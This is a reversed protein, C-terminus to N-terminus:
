LVDAPDMNHRAKPLPLRSVIIMEGLIAAAAILFGPYFSGTMDILFGGIAPGAMQGVGHGTTVLGMAAAAMTPGVLDGAAVTIITMPGIYAAGFLFASVYLSPVDQRFVPILIGVTMMLACTVIAEKRGWIDSLHGWPILTAVAMISVLSWLTGAFQTTYGLGRTLFTVLFVAYISFFGHCLYAAALGLLARNQFVAGWNRSAREVRSAPEQQRPGVDAPSDRITIYGIVGSALAALGFYTWAPRWGSGGHALLILPGFVATALIGVNAGITTISMFIGRRRPPFWTTVLGAIPIYTGGSGMGIVLMLFFAVPYWSNLAQGVMALGVAVASLSIIARSGFRVAVMGSILCSVTYGVMIASALAGAPGYSLNLSDKMAPLVVPYLYRGAGLTTLTTVFGAVVILWSYPHIVENVASASDELAHDSPTTLEEGRAGGIYHRRDLM